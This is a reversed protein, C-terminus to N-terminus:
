KDKHLEEEIHREFKQYESLAKIAADSQDGHRECATHYSLFAESRKNKLRRLKHTDKDTQHTM